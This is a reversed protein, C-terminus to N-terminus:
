NGGNGSTGNEPGQEGRAQGEVLTPAIRRKRERGEESAAESADSPRKVGVVVGPVSSASGNVHHGPTQPPTFLPLNSGAAAVSPLSTMSPTPNNMVPPANQDPVFRAFSADTAISSVSMSRAPSAPRPASTYPSPSPNPISPAPTNHASPQRPPAPVLPASIPASPATPTAQPTSATSNAKTVSISQPIQRPTGATPQHYVTGLEGPSFTLASCFGDSSTMLLTHGDSSWTLDTFTAYHLNSVVCLPRQQQTDYIHVADQTAVAYVIRYPLGFAPPPGAAPPAITATVPEADSLHRPSAMTAASPSPSPAAALPPPEMTSYSPTPKSPIAPEPLQPIDEDAWTDITIEKTDTNVTRMNYYIPSCKVALSPKKHGPLYAVPPKNLGGRTYIYVTNIIDDSAKSGDAKAPHTTKYQGAPTFLLSGDPAFTLRRFFSTFTENAYINTNRAGLGLGGSMSPSASPMVAPLPMSPSPSVSRQRASQGMQSGFSSRRSHSTPPPNMPLALSQPTGPASPRPSGFAESLAEQVFLARHGNSFDPPAPSNSSIRRGPLDMKTVKNHPALSFQGDKTKLAYIHISRDSSQTAVFENLPDWAVGQVYHNHEAIQRVCAGSSVSHIRAVNDMSGTIFFAGDPSWALDYIEQGAGSRCMTKVRWHEVDERDDEGFSTQLAPNDSPIWLLVNGDDGASALLEGRPCWRVVNVAQTHKSLTSLYTVKRDEGNVEVQWIRVHHDGGATALRGKGHPEFHTSYIPANEDHWAVLLPAAKM